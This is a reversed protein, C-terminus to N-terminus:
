HVDQSALRVNPAKKKSSIDFIHRGAIRVSANEVHASGSTMIAGSLVEEVEGHLAERPWSSASATQVGTHCFHQPSSTPPRCWFFM